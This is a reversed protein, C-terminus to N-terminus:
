QVQLFDTGGAAGPYAVGYWQAMRSDVFSTSSTVLDTLKGQWLTNRLFKDSEGFMSAALDSTWEPFLSPDKVAYATNVHGLEYFAEVVQTLNETTGPMKLIRDVESAVGDATNLKGSAAASTLTADPPGNTLFYSLESALEYSGLTASTGSVQGFET